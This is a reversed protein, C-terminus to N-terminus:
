IIKEGDLIGKYLQSNKDSDNIWIIDCKWDCAESIKESIKGKENWNNASENLCIAIDIDSDPRCRLNTSSGFIYVDKVNENDKLVNFVAVTKKQNLPHIREIQFPQKEVVVPFIYKNKREKEWTNSITVPLDPQKEQLIEKILAYVYDPANRRGQEWQRLTCVPINFRDAFDQQSLGTTMRLEKIMVLTYTM